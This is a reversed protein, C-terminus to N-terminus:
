LPITIVVHKKKGLSLKLRGEEDFDSRTVSVTESEVKVGNVRAGGGKILRKAESKSGALEARVLMDVVLVGEGEVQNTSTLAVTPLSDLDNGEGKFLSDATAHIQSLCESGHLLTTAEDALRRKASNLQSGEWSSMHAIEDLSVETFLKLFRIVDADDTNRWFQWYEYESLLEKNLWLAGSATKGMKKGESNLILPATLGYVTRQDVKRTLEIGSIINGWQDSGGLQLSTGYLRHLQLFDYAQLLMYNFELFTLPHERALRQKVSEFSLMRNITFYRGYDRLFDLYQINNLWDANNVMIADTDKEGFKIFKQFVRSISAANENIMEESLLQRSEDKGTPDGVKTTGGGILIIPKHGHKQLTRLIMIQLLSGVHLSSATADFGLYASTTGNMLKEDLGKFDTCQNIFGRDMM